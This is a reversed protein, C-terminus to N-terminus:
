LRLKHGYNRSLKNTIWKSKGNKLATKGDASSAIKINIGPINSNIRKFFEDYFDEADKELIGKIVKIGSNELKKIGKGRVLPNKDLCAIVVKKVGSNIIEDVCPPNKGKHVCPELTSYLGTGAKIDIGELAKKEAHPSGGIGTNPISIITKDRSVIVCGVSPNVGTM